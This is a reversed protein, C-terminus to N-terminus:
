CSSQQIFGQGSKPKSFTSDVGVVQWTNLASVQSSRFWIERKKKGL